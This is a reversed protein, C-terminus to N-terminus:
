WFGAVMDSVVYTLNLEEVSAWFLASAISLPRCQRGLGLRVGLGSHDPM